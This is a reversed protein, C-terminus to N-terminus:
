LRPLPAPNTLVVRGDRLVVVGMDYTWVELAPDADPVQVVNPKGLLAEVQARKMGVSVAKPPTPARTPQLPVAGSCGVVLAMIVAAWWRSM